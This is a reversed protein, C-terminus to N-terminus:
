PSLIEQIGKRVDYEPQYGLVNGAHTIDARVKKVEYGHAEKYIIDVDIGSIDMITEAVSNLSVSSGSGINYIGSKGTKMALLNASVIDKVYVFDREQKGDGYIVPSMRNLILHIFKPIAAAFESTGDQGKGYVNFYRLISINMGYLETFMKCYYEGTIKSVAYPTLPNLARDESVVEQNVRGYVLASSPFVFNRVGAENAATLLNLTGTINVDNFRQPQSNSISANGLAAQHFVGDISYESFIKRLSSTDTVDGCVWQMGDDQVSRTKQSTLVVASDGQCVIGEALHSGIFGRGGTVLYQM